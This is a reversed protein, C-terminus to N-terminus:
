PKDIWKKVRRLFDENMQGIYYLFINGEVEIPQFDLARLMQYHTAENAAWFFTEKTYYNRLARITVFYKTAPLTTVSTDFTEWNDKSLAGALLEVQYSNKTKLYEVPERRDGLRVYGWETKM